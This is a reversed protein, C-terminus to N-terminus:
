QHLDSLIPHPNLLTTVVEFLIDLRAHLASSLLFTVNVQKHLHSPSKAVIAMLTNKHMRLSLFMPKKNLM